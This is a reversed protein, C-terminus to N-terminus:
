LINTNQRTRHAFRIFSYKGRDEFCEFVPYNVKERLLNSYEIELSARYLDSNKKREEDRSREDMKRYAEARERLQLFEPTAERASYAKMKEKHFSM